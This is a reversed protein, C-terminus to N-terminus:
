LVQVLLYFARQLSLVEGGKSIGAQYRKGTGTDCGNLVVIPHKATLDLGFIDATSLHGTKKSSDPALQLFYNLPNYESSVGIAAIHILAVDKANKFFNSMTAEEGVFVNSTINYTTKVMNVESETMPAKDGSYGIALISNIETPISRSASIFKLVSASPMNVINFQKFMLDDKFYLVQFPMDYLCDDPIIILTEVDKNGMLELLPDLIIAGVRHAEVDWDNVTNKNPHHSLATKLVRVDTRLQKLPYKIRQCSYSNKSISFLAITSDQLFTYSLLLTKEPLLTQLINISIVNKTTFLMSASPKTDAMLHLQTEYKQKAKIYQKKLTSHHKSENNDSRSYEDYRNQFEIQLDQAKRVEHFAPSQAIKINGLSLFSIFTRAKAKETYEFATMLDQNELAVYIQKETTSRLADFYSSRNLGSKLSFAIEEQKGISTSYANLSKELDKMEFYVDGKGEYCHAELETINQSVAYELVENYTTLAKHFERNVAYATGLDFKMKNGEYNLKREIAQNVVKEYEKISFQISIDNTYCTALGHYNSAFEEFDESGDKGKLLDLYLEAAKKFDGLKQYSIAIQSHIDRAIDVAGVKEAIPIAEQAIELAQRHRGIYSLLLAYSRLSSALNRQNGIERSLNIVELKYKEAKEFQNLSLSLDGLGTLSANKLALDQREVSLALAKQYCKESKEVNHMLLNVLGLKYYVLNLLGPSLNQKEDLLKMFAAEANELEGMSLLTGAYNAAARIGHPSGIRLGRDRAKKFYQVAEKRDGKMDEIVGLTQDIRCQIEENGTQNALTQSQIISENSLLTDGLITSVFAIQQLSIAQNQTHHIEQWLSDTQLLIPLAARYNRRGLLHSASDALQTILLGQQSRNLLDDQEHSSANKLYVLASDFNGVEFYCKGIILYGKDINTSLLTQKLSDFASTDSTLFHIRLLLELADSNSPHQKLIKRISNQSKNYEFKYFSQNADDLSANKSCNYLSLAVTFIFVFITRNKISTM